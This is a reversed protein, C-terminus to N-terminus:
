QSRLDKRKKARQKKEKEKKKAMKEKFEQISKRKMRQLLTWGFYVGLVGGLIVIWFAYPLHFLEHEMLDHERGSFLISIHLLEILYVGFIGAELLELAEGIAVNHATNENLAEFVGKMEKESLTSSLNRLNEVETRLNLIVKEADQVRAHMDDLAEKLGLIEIFAKGTEGEAQLLARDLGKLSDDIHGLIANFMSVDASLESIEEMVEAVSETEEHLIREEIGKMTDSAMWFRAHTNMIFIELGRFLSYLTLAGEYRQYNDSILIAGTEGIFIRGDVLEHTGIVSNIVQNMEAVYEPRAMHEKIGIDPAFEKATVVLFKDRTRSQCLYVLDLLRKQNNSLLTDMMKSSDYVLDASIKSINDMSHMEGQNDSEWLDLGYIVCGSVDV